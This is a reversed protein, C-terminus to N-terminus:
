PMRSCTRMPIGWPVYKSLSVRRIRSPFERMPRFGMEVCSTRPSFLGAQAPIPAGLATRSVLRPPQFRTLPRPMSVADRLGRAAKVHALAKKARDYVEATTEGEPFICNQPSNQWKEAFVPYDAFAKDLKMGSLAGVDVEMLEPLKIIPLSHYLDVAEATKYARKLPSSYVADIPINRFRLALLALQKEGTASIDLDLQGQFINDRNGLSECHRVLYLHLKKM